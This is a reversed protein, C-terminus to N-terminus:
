AVDGLGLGEDGDGVAGDLPAVEQTGSGREVIEEQTDQSPGLPDVLHGDRGDRHEGRVEVEEQDDVVRFLDGAEHSVELGLRGALDVPQGAPPSRDELVAVVHGDDGVFLGGLDLAQLVDQRVPDLLVQHFPHAM